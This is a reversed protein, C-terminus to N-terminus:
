EEIARNNMIYYFIPGHKAMEAEDAEETEEMETVQDYKMPFVSVMNCNIGLSSESGSDFDDTLM